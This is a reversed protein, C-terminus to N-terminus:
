TEPKKQLMEALKEAAYKQAGPLLHQYVKATFGPSAHGLRESVIKTDVGAALLLSACCHRLDHFRIKPVKAKEIIKMFHDERLNGGDMYGGAISPFIIDGEAEEKQRRMAERSLILTVKRRSSERKTEKVWLKGYRNALSKNVAISEGDFDSWTLALLEGLRCGSDIAVLYLLEFRSGQAATLFAQAQEASWITPRYATAKALPALSAVNKALHGQEVAFNLAQRLTIGCRRVMTASRKSALLSAYAKSIDGPKLRQLIKTGLAPTLHLRCHQDYTDWTTPEVTPRVVELWARLFQAVTVNESVSTDISKLKAQVEAKSQGTVTRRIRSGTAHNYGLSVSACWLGDKRLYISGEGRGRRKRNM